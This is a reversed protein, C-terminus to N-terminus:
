LLTEVKNLLSQASDTFVDSEPDAVLLNNLAAQMRCLPSQERAVTCCPIIALLRHRCGSRSLQEVCEPSDMRGRLIAIATSLELRARRVELSNMGLMGLLFKKPYM